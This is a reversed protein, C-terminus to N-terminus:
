CISEVKVHLSFFILEESGRQVFYVAYQLVFAGRFIIRVIYIQKTGLERGNVILVLVDEALSGCVLKRFVLEIIV